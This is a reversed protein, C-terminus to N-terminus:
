SETGSALWCNCPQPTMYSMGRRNHVAAVMVPCTTEHIESTRLLNELFEIRDNDKQAAMALAPTVKEIPQLRDELDTLWDLMKFNAGSQQEMNGQLQKCFTETHHMFDLVHKSTRNFM